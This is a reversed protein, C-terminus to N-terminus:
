AVFDEDLDLLEDADDEAHGEDGDEEDADDPNADDGPGPAPPVGAGRGNPRAPNWFETIDDNLLKILQIGPKMELVIEPGEKM